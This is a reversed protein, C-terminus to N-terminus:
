KYDKAAVFRRHNQYFKTLRYYFYIPSKYDKELTFSLTCSMISSVKCKDDYRIEIKDIQNAAVFILIGLIM